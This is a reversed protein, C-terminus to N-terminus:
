WENKRMKLLFFLFVPAGILATIVGVPLSVSRAIIDSGLLVLAGMIASTPILYRANPGVFLRSLHPCVLGVFGITGTFCVVMATSLSVVLMVLASSRSYNVGLSLTQNRGISLVNLTRWYFLLFGCSMAAAFLVVPMNEWGIDGINGIGWRYAEALKSPAASVKMLTTGASFIYMLAVGVLITMTPSTKRVVSIFLIAAMPILSFVFANVIQGTIMSSMPVITIGYVIFLTVGFSAGSSIGLTYSDALPNRLMLQMAAGGVSLVAGVLIAGVAHSLNLDVVIFDELREVYTTLEKGMIHDAIIQYAKSFSLPYDGVTVSLLITVIGLIIGIIVVLMNLRLKRRYTVRFDENVM